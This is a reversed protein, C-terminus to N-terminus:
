RPLTYVLLDASMLWDTGTTAPSLILNDLLTTPGADQQLVSIFVLLQQQSGRASLSYRYVRYVGAQMTETTESKRQYRVGTVGSLQADVAVREFVDPPVQSPVRQQLEALRQKEGKLNASISAIDGTQLSVAQRLVAETASVQQALRSANRFTSILYLILIAYAVALIAVLVIRQNLDTKQMM